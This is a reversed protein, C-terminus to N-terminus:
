NKKVSSIKLKHARNSDLLEVKAKTHAPLFSSSLIGFMSSVMKSFHIFLLLLLLLLFLGANEEWNEEQCKKEGSSKELTQPHRIIGCVEKQTLHQHAPQARQWRLGLQPSREWKKGSGRSEWTRTGCPNNKLTQLLFHLYANSEKQLSEGHNGSSTWAYASMLSYSIYLQHVSHLSTLVM